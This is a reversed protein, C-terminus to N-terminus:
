LPEGFGTDLLDIQHANDLWSSPPSLLPRTGDPANSWLVVSALAGPSLYKLSSPSFWDPRSAFREGKSLVAAADRPPAALAYVNKSPFTPLRIDHNYALVRALATVWLGIFLAVVPAADARAATVTACGGLFAPVAYLEMQSYLIRPPRACLVDRALGGFTATFMGCLACALFHLQHGSFAYGAYAGNSAFVALGITDTWFLWEDTATLRFRHSLRPWAFFTSAAGLVCVALEDWHILWFVPLKGLLVDRFTGGGLATVTGVICCGLLDMGEMGAALSGTVAFSMDGLYNM